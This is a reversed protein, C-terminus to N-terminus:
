KVGAALDRKSYLNEEEKHNDCLQKNLPISLICCKLLYNKGKRLEVFPKSEFVLLKNTMGTTSYVWRLNTCVTATIKSRSLFFNAILIFGEM